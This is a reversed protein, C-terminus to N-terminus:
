FLGSIVGDENVSMNVAAPVKPLGPMLMMNGCVVVLFGAGASLQVDTVTLKHNKPAGRETRNDTLSAQTKAICIPLKDYGLKTFLEINKQAKKDFSVRDARYISTAIKIVKEEVSDSSKYLQVQAPDMNEDAL